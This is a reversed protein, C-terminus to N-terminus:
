IDPLLAPMVQCSSQLGPGIRLQVQPRNLDGPRRKCLGPLIVDLNNPIGRPYRDQEMGLVPLYYYLTYYTHIITIVEWSIAKSRRVGPSCASRGYPAPATVEQGGGSHGYVLLAPGAPPPALRNGPLYYSVLM